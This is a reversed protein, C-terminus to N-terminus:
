IYYCCCEDISAHVYSYLLGVRFVILMMCCKGFVVVSWFSSDVCSSANEIGVSPDFRRLCILMYPLKLWNICTSLSIALLGYPLKYTKAILLSHYIANEIGPLAPACNDCQVPTRTVVIRPWSAAVERWYSLVSRQCQIKLKESRSVRIILRVLLQKGFPCGGYISLNHLRLCFGGYLDVKIRHQGVSIAVVKVFTSSYLLLTKDFIQNWDVYTHMCVCHLKTNSWRAHLRIQSVQSKIFLNAYYVGNPRIWM